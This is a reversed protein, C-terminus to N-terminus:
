NQYVVYIYGKIEKDLLQEIKEDFVDQTVAKLLKKGFIMVLVKLM